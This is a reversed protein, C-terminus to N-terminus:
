LGLQKRVEELSKGGRQAMRRRSEAVDGADIRAQRQREKVAALMQKYDADPVIWFKRGELRLTGPSM